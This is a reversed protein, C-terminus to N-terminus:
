TEGVATSGGGIDPIGGLELIIDHCGATPFVAPRSALRDVNGVVRVKGHIYRSCILSFGPMFADGSGERGGIRETQISSSISDGARRPGACFNVSGKGHRQGARGARERSIGSDTGDGQGEGFGGGAALATGRGRPRAQWAGGPPRRVPPPGAAAGTRVGAGDGPGLDLYSIPSLPGGASRYRREESEGSLPTM